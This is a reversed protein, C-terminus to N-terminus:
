CSVCLEPVTHKEGALAVRVNRRSLQDLLQCVTCGLSGTQARSSLVPFSISTDAAHRQEREDITVRITQVDHRRVTEPRTRLSVFRTLESCRCDAPQPKSQFIGSRARALAVLEQRELRRVPEFRM